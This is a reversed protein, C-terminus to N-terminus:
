EARPRVRRGDGGGEDEGEGELNHARPRPNNLQQQRQQAHQQQALERQRTLVRATDAIAQAAATAAAAGSGGGHRQQQQGGQQQRSSGGEHHRHHHHHSHQQVIMGGGGGGAIAAAPYAAIAALLEAQLNPCSQVQQTPPSLSFFFSLHTKKAEKARHVFSFFGSISISFFRFSKFKRFGNKRSVMHQYGESAMVAQLNRSVFALCVRKLDGANNQEALALTTAATSVDVRECLRRECIRRLRSLAFRDAAVLLHQAMPVDLAAGVTSLAAAFAATTTTTTAPPRPPAAAVVALANSPPAAAANSTAVVAEGNGGSASNANSGIESPLEDTYAFHLLARFVPSRVDSIRIRPLQPLLRPASAGSSALSSRKDDGNNKNKVEDGDGDGGGFVERAERMGGNLLADFVPSRASLVIRHAKFVDGEVEFEVDAGAGSDLLRALDLGLSPPPLPLLSGERETGIGGGRGGLGRLSGIGLGGGSGGGGATPKALAGGTSVVLEITYRIVLTDNVLYGAAPNELVSRKVFKRYGHCNRANPDQRACSIKVAGQDRRRGKTLNNASASGPPASQDVLTFRHFARVVRGDSTNVVGLPDSTEGILAVFLAAYENNSAATAAAQAQAQAAAAAQAQAAAAAAAAAQAQAAAAAAANDNAANRAQLQQQQQQAAQQRQAANLAAVAASGNNTATTAAPLAAPAANAATTTAAAEGPGRPLQQPPQQQQLAARGAAVAVAAAATAAANRQQQQQQQQQQQRAAAAAAATQAAVAAAQAAQAAAAAQQQQQQGQGHAAVAAAAAAEQAPASSSRKGDPYFLLVWEHGGV